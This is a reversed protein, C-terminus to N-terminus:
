GGTRREWEQFFKGFDMDMGLIHHTIWERLFLLTAMSIHQGSHYTNQKKKVRLLFMQHEKKHQVIGPYFKALMWMEESRFHYTAYDILEDFITGLDPNANTFGDHTKEFLQFLHRHHEDIERLGIKYSDHWELKEM